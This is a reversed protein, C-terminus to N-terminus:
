LVEEDFPINLAECGALVFRGDRIIDRIEGTKMVVSLQGLEDYPITIDTHCNFYAKKGKDEQLRLRSVENDRAIIEKGNPNYVKVDESHSYCTDGFAFHPGMKEAILIPLKDAIGYKKAVMYATTNTGIAFEGIPLTEHHFLVNDKIYKKNEEASAFNSCTYDKVMGDTVTIELNEYELENLFVRSVHLVGSTGSLRPSTFVEGVPINVDAVCNEFITEKEPNSLETLFVAMDTKNGQNGKIIVYEGRDLVDIITQQIREYLKYDLTNIKVIEDFITGYAEGIEPVPFAIITFSREEGSIYENVIRGSESAYEVLLQQQVDSLRCAEKKGAPGFPQEGFVEICAPGAHVDAWEKEKEYAEKIVELKRHMLLKDLFLAEDEKHDFEYQKNATAGSYGIKLNNKKTFVSVGARYVTPELGMERFNLIAKKVVREFGLHYRINVVKKKTLDKNGNIFGIRFGETYTDAMKDIEEGSMSLLHRATGLESETIYEGFYYLYRLDELDSNMIIDVAFKENPDLQEKIRAEMVPESYDSVFWYVIEQITEYDPNLQEERRAYFFVHYVQLFLEMRIAMDFVKREYAYVILSRMEAYLFSLIGGFTSGMCEVAYHPNAYSKEYAGPIIDQYLERNRRQLEERTDESVKGDRVHCHIENMQLLFQAVSRFYAGFPETVVEETRIEKIRDISLQYREEMM